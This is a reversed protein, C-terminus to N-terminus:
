LGPRDQVNRGPKQITHDELALAFSFIKFVSGLEYVNQAMMNQISDGADLKRGNPDFDPLSVLGLVEGSNVDMVIGGAARATFTHRAAEM